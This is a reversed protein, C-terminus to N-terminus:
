MGAEAEDTRPTDFFNEGVVIFNEPIEELANYYVTKKDKKVGANLFGNLYLVDVSGAVLKAVKDKNYDNLQSGPNELSTALCGYQKALKQASEAILDYSMCNKVQLTKVLKEYNISKIEFPNNSFEAVGEINNICANILDEETFYPNSKTEFKTNIYSRILDIFVQNEVKM